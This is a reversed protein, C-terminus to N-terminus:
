TVHSMKIDLPAVTGSRTEFFYLFTLNSCDNSKDKLSATSRYTDLLDTAGGLWWGSDEDAVM